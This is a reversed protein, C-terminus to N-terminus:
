IVLFRKIETEVFTDFTSNYKILYRLFIPVEFDLIFKIETKHGFFSNEDDTVIWRAEMRSFPGKLQKIYISYDEIKNLSELEFKKKFIDFELIGVYNTENFQKKLYSNTCFSISNNYKTFDKIKEFLTDKSEFSYHIFEKKLQPISFNFNFVCSFTCCIKYFIVM